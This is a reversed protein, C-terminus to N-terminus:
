FRVVTEVYGFHGTDGEPYTNAVVEHGSARGYYLNVGLRRIPLM